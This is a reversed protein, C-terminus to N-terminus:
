AHPLIVLLSIIYDIAAAIFADTAIPPPARWLGHLTARRPMLILYEHRFRATVAAPSARLLPTSIMYDNIDALLKFLKM